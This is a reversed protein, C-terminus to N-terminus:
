PQTEVIAQLLDIDGLNVGWLEGDINVACGYSHQIKITLEPFRNSLIKCVKHTYDDSPSYCGVLLLLIFLLILLCMKRM